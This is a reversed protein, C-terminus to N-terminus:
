ELTIYLRREVFCPTNYNVNATEVVIRIVGRLQIVERDFVPALVAM